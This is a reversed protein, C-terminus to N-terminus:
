YVADSTVDNFSMNIFLLSNYVKEGIQINCTLDDCSNHLLCFTGDRSKASVASAAKM